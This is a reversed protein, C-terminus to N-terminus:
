VPAARRPTSPSRSTPPTGGTRMSSGSPPSSGRWCSGTRVTWRSSRGWDCEQGDEAREDWRGGARAELFVDAADADAIHHSDKPWWESFRDTFLEFAAKPPLPVIVSTTVADKTETM